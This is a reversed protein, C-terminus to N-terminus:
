DDSSHWTPVKLRRKDTPLQASKFRQFRLSSRVGGNRRCHYDVNPSRNCHSFPLSSAPNLGRDLSAACV